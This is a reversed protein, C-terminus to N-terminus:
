SGAVRGSSTPPSQYSMTSSGSPRIPMTTPSQTPWSRPAAVTMPWSRLAQRASSSCSALALWASVAISLNADKTGPASHAVTKQPMRSGAVPESRYELAACGGPM